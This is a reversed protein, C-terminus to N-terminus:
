IEVRDRELSSVFYILSSIKNSRLKIHWKVVNKHADNLETFGFANFKSPSKKHTDNNRKRIM